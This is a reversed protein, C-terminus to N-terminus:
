NALIAELQAIRKQWYAIEENKKAMGSETRVRIKSVEIEVIRNQCWVIQEKAHIKRGVENWWDYYFVVKETYTFTAEDMTVEVIQYSGTARQTRQINKAIEKAEELTSQCRTFPEYKTYKGECDAYVQNEIRYMIRM